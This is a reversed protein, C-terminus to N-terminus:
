PKKLQINTLRYLFLGQKNGQKTTFPLSKALAGRKQKCAPNSVRIKCACPDGARFGHKPDTLGIPGRATKQNFVQRAPSIGATKHRGNVAIMM